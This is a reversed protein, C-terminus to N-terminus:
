RKSGQEVNREFLNENSIVKRMFEEEEEEKRERREEGRSRRYVRV